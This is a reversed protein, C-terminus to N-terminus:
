VDLYQVQVAGPAMASLCREVSRVDISGGGAGHATCLMSCVTPVTVVRHLAFQQQQSRETVRHVAFKACVHLVTFLAHECDDCECRTYFLLCLMSVTMVNADQLDCDDCECRAPRCTYVNCHEEVACTATATSWSALLWELM